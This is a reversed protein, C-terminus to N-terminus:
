YFKYSETLPSDTLGQYTQNENMQSKHSDAVQQLVYFIQFM